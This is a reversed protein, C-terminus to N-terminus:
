GGYEEFIVGFILIGSTLYIWSPASLTATNGIIFFGLGAFARGIIRSNRPLYTGSKKPELHLVQMASLCWHILAIQVGYLTQFEFKLSDGSVGKDTVNKYGLEISIM